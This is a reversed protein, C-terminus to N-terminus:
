VLSSFFDIATSNTCANWVTLCLKEILAILHVFEMIGINNSSELEAERKAEDDVFVVTSM